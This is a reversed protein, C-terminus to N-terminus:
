RFRIRRRRPQRVERRSSPAGRRTRVEDFVLTGDRERLILDVEGGRANPGRAVRYNREVLILGQGLLHALAQAEGADGVEKATM